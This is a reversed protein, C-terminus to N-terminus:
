PPLNDLRLIPTWTAPDVRGWSELLPPQRARFELPGRLRRHVIPQVSSDLGERKVDFRVSLAVQEARLFPLHHFLVADDKIKVRTDRPAACRSNVLVTDCVKNDGASLWAACAIRTRPTSRGDRRTHPPYRPRVRRSAPSPVWRM